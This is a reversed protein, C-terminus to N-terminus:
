QAAAFLLMSTKGSLGSTAQLVTARSSNSRRALDGAVLVSALAQVAGAAGATFGAAANISLTPPIAAASGFVGALTAMEHAAVGTVVVRSVDRTDAHRLLKARALQGSTGTTTQYALMEGHIRAGRERAHDWQELVLMAAGTVLRVREPGRLCVGAREMGAEVMPTGPSDAGGALMVPCKGNRVADFAYGVADAGAVDLNCFTVSPGAIRLPITVNGILSGYYAVISSVASVQPNEYDIAAEIYGHEFGWKMPGSLTGIALGIDDAAAGEQNRMLGASCLAEAAAVIAYRATDDLYKPKTKPFRAILREEAVPDTDRHPQSRGDLASRFEDVNNLASTCLGLGTVAVRCRQPAPGPEPAASEPVTATM